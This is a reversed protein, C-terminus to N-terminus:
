CKKEWALSDRGNHLLMLCCALQNRVLHQVFVKLDSRQFKATLLIM